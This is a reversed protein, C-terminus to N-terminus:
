KEEAMTEFTNLPLRATSTNNEAIPIVVESGREATEVYAELRVRDVVATTTTGSITEAALDQGDQPPLPGSSVPGGGDGGGSSSGGGGSDTGPTDPVAPPISIGSGGAVEGTYNGKGVAKATITRGRDAAAVTYTAATAVTSEGSIWVIDYEEPSTESTFVATLTEGVAAEGAITLTGTIERKAVTVAVDHELRLGQYDGPTTVTFIVTIAQEGANNIGSPNKYSFNGELLTNGATAAGDGLPGAKDDRDGYTYITGAIKDEVATWDVNVDETASGKTLTIVKTGSVITGRLAATVTCTMAGSIVASAASTVTVIGDEGISVGEVEPSLSWDISGGEYGKGYQDYVVATFPASTNAAEGTDPVAMM